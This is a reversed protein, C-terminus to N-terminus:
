GEGRTPLQSAKPGRRGWDEEEEEQGGGGIAPILGNDYDVVRGAIEGIIYATTYYLYLRTNLLNHPDRERERKSEGM